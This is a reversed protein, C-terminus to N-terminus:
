CPSGSSCSSASAPPCRSRAHRDAVHRAGRRLTGVAARRRRRDVPIQLQRLPRLAPRLDGAGDAAPHGADARALGHVAPVGRGMRHSLGAAAAGAARGPPDCRRGRRGSGTRVVAFQVGIYRSDDQRYIFSAGNEVRIAALEKLPVEQGGPTAVPIDGIAIPNSRFQRQLRVVLDFEKTARSWRPPSTAASRPMSSTTSTMSTSGM